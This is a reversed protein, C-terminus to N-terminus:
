LIKIFIFIRFLLSTESRDYLARREAYNTTFNNMSLKGQQHIGNFTTHVTKGKEDLSLNSDITNSLGPEESEHTSAIDLKYDSSM